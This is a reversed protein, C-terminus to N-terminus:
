HNSSCKRDKCRKYKEPAASTVAQACGATNGEMNRKLKVNVATNIKPTDVFPADYRYIYIYM